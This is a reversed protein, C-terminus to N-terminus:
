RMFAFPTSAMPSRSRSMNETVLLRPAPGRWAAGPRQAGIRAALSNIDAIVAAARQPNRRKFAEAHTNYWGAKRLLNTQALWRSIEESREGGSSVRESLLTDLEALIHTRLPQPLANVGPFQRSFRDTTEIQGSMKAM